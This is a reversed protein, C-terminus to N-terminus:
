WNVSLFFFFLRITGAYTGFFFNLTFCTGNIIKYLERMCLYRLLLLYLLEEFTVALIDSLGLTM